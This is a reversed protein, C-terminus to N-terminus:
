KVKPIDNWKNTYSPSLFKRNMKWKIRIGQSAIFLKGHKSQNINDIVNMLESKLESEEKKFLDIQEMKEQYFDSLIVGSKHYQYEPLWIKKLIQNAVQIVKIYNNTPKLLSQAFFNSYYGQKSFRNTQIFIGINKTKQNEQRLKETARFAYTSIAQQMDDINEIKKGFSKSCVIQKKPAPQEELNLISQGNLEYIIREVVVSFKKRITIPDVRSLDFVSKIGLLNLKKNLKYGVGWVESVPTIKMLKHQAQINCLNCVGNLVPYKKAAYNALKALTKTPGIGVGVSVGVHKKVTSKILSGFKSLENLETLDLFAEDISYVEIHPALQDLTKMVRSSINAYLTYNSSFCQINYNKIKDKIKFVPIGMSIGLEKAEKSRAVVCGDNNSLVIIPVENLDPRFLRECSAYFNNCDVLAFIKSSM